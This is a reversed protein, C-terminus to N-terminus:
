PVWSKALSRNTDAADMVHNWTNSVYITQGPTYTKTATGHLGVLLVATTTRNM